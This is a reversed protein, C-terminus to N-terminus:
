GQLGEAQLRTAWLAARRALEDKIGIEPYDPRLRELEEYRFAAEGHERWAAQLARFPSSGMRLAFWLGNQQRDVNAGKGVWVQGTAECVVAFVGWAPPRERYQTLAEKRAQHDM